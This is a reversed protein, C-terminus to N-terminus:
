LFVSLYGIISTLPTKLEHSAMSVFDLKMQELEEERSVDHLILICNLNTQVTNGIQATMLNVKTQKGEKGVLKTIQNFSGQCYTQPLIEDADSFLHIMQDIPIGYAESASYGTIEESAKNLFIINKNFDLAIVGDIVSSLIENFRNKESIAVEKDKELKQFTQALKDAMLNFSNGAEEFEDGSRIDIRHNFNGDSFDKTGKVFINLPKLIWFLAVISLAASIVGIFISLIPNLKLFSLLLSPILVAMLIIFAVKLKLPKKNFRPLSSEKPPQEMTDELTVSPYNLTLSDPIIQSSNAAM